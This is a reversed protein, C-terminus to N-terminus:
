HAQWAQLTRSSGRIIIAFGLFSFVDKINQAKSWDCVAKLKDKTLTMGAGCIQQGLFEISHKYIKCNSVKVFLRHKRLVQLVKELHEAHQQVKDFYVLINDFSILVCWALYHGLLNNMMNMFQAPTNTFGFLM